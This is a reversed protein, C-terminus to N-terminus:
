TWKNDRKQGQKTKTRNKVVKQEVFERKQRSETWKKDVRDWNQGRITWIEPGSKPLFSQVFAPCFKFLFNRENIVQDGLLQVFDPCYRSVLCDWSQGAITWRGLRVLFTHTNCCGLSSCIISMNLVNDPIHRLFTWCCNLKTIDKNKIQGPNTRGRCIRTHLLVDVPSINYCIEVM